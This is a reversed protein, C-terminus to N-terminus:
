RVDFPSPPLVIRQWAFPVDYEEASVSFLRLRGDRTDLIYTDSQEWAKLGPGRTDLVLLIQTGDPSVAVPCRYARPATIPEVMPGADTGDSRMGWLNVASRFETGSRGWHIRRGDWSWLPDRPTHGDRPRVVWECDADRDFLRIERNFTWNGSDYLFLLRDPDWPHATPDADHDDHNDVLPYGPGGNSDTVALAREYMTFELEYAIGRGHPLFVADVVGMCRVGHDRRAHTLRRNEGTLLDLSFLDWAQDMRRAYVLLRGDPSTRLFDPGDRVVRALLRKDTGDPRAAWVMRVGQVLTYYVIREEKWPTSAVPLEPAPEDAYELCAVKPVYSSGVFLSRSDAGFALTSPCEVPSPFPSGLSFGELDLIRLCSDGRSAVIGCTGDPSASLVTPGRGLPLSRQPVLQQSFLVLRSDERGDIALAPQGAPSLMLSNRSVWICPESVTHHARIEARLLDVALITAAGYDTPSAAVYATRGDASLCLSRPEGYTGEPIPCVRAKGEGLPIPLIHLAAGTDYVGPHWDCGSLVCLFTGDSAVATAGLYQGVRTGLTTGAQGRPVHRVVGKARNALYVGSTAVAISVLAEAEGTIAEPKSDATDGAQVLYGFGARGGTALLRAGNADYALARPHEPLEIWGNLRYTGSPAAPLGAVLLCLIALVARM